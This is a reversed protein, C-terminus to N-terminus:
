AHPRQVAALPKAPGALRRRLAFTVCRAVKDELAFVDDTRCEFLHSWLHTGEITDVLHVTVRLRSGARQLNGEILWQAAPRKGDYAVGDVSRRAHSSPNGACPWVPETRRPELELVALRPEVGIALDSARAIPVAAACRTSSYRALSPITATPGARRGASTERGRAVM